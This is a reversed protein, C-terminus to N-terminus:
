AVPISRYPEILMSIAMPLESVAAGVVTNIRNEFMDGILMKMAIRIPEPVPENAPSSLDQYGARFTVRFIDPDDSAIVSPFDFGQLPVIIGGWRGGLITRYQDSPWVTRTGDTDLYDIEQVELTPPLPLRNPVVQCDLRWVQPRLCRGLIGDGGDFRQRAAEILGLILVDDDGHDVRLYDKVEQLTLVPEVPPDLLTLM